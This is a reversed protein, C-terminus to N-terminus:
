LERYTLFQVDCLNDSSLRLTSQIVPLSAESKYQFTQAYSVVGLQSTSNLYPNIGTVLMSLCDLYVGTVDTIRQYSSNAEDM